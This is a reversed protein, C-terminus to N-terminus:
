KNNRKINQVIERTEVNFVEAVSAAFMVFYGRLEFVRVRLDSTLRWGSVAREAYSRTGPPYVGSLSSTIVRAPHPRSVYKGPM